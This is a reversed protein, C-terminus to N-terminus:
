GSMRALSRSSSETTINQVDPEGITSSRNVHRRERRNKGYPGVLVEGARSILCGAHCTNSNGGQHVPFRVIAWDILHASAHCGTGAHASDHIDYPSYRSRLEPGSFLLRFSFLGTGTINRCNALRQAGVVFVAVCFAN